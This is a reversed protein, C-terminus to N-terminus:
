CISLIWKKDGEYSRATKSLQLVFEIEAGATHDNDLYNALETLRPRRM